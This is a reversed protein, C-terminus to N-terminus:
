IDFRKNLYFAVAKRERHSLEQIEAANNNVKDVIKMASSKDVSDMALSCGNCNIKKHFVIKGYNYPNQIGSGGRAGFSGSAMSATSVAVLGVAIFATSLKRYKM